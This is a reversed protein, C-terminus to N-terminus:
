LNLFDDPSPTKVSNQNTLGDKTLNRALAEDFKVVMGQTLSKLSYHTIVAFLSVGVIILGGQIAVQKWNIAAPSPPGKMRNFSESVSLSSYKTM